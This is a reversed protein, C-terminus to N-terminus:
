AKGSSVGSYYSWWKGNCSKLKRPSLRYAPRNPLSAGPILDIQHQIDCLPPLGTPFDNPMLDEFEKLLQQVEVLLELCEGAENGGCPLLAYMMNEKKLDGLFRSM